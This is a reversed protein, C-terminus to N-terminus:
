PVSPISPVSLAFSTSRLRLLLRAGQDDLTVLARVLCGTDDDIHADLVVHVDAVRTVGSPTARVITCRDVAADYLAAFVVGPLAALATAHELWRADCFTEGGDFSVKGRSAGFSFALTEGSRVAFTPADHRRTRGESADAGDDTRLVDRRERVLADADRESVVVFSNRAPEPLSFAFPAGGLAVSESADTALPGDSDDESRDLPPAAGLTIATDDPGEVDDAAGIAAPTELHVSESAPEHEDPQAQLWSGRVVSDELLEPVAGIPGDDTLEAIPIGRQEELSPDIAASPTLEASDVDDLGISQEDFEIPPLGEVGLPEEDALPAARDVAMRLTM